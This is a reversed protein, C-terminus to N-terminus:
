ADFEGEFEGGFGGVGVAVTGCDGGVPGVVGVAFSQQLGPILDM